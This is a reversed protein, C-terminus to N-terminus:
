PKWTHGCNGCRNVTKSAGIFGFAWNAGRAGTTINTSGCKPCRLQNEHEQIVQKQQALQTRFQAMRSQYEIIDDKKLQIMALIFDQEHSIKSLDDYEGCTIGTDELLGGCEKCKMDPPTIFINYFGRYTMFGWPVNKKDALCKRCILLQKSRYEEKNGM